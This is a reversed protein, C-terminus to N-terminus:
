YGYKKALREISEPIAFGERPHPATTGHCEKPDVFQYKYQNVGLFAALDMVERRINPCDIQFVFPSLQRGVEAFQEFAHLVSNEVKKPLQLGDIRSRTHSYRAAWSKYVEVPDRLTVVVKGGGYKDLPAHMPECIHLHVFDGVKVMDGTGINMRGISLGMNKLHEFIYHTGTHKVTFCWIAPLAIQEVQQGPQSHAM